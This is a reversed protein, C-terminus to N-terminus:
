RARESGLRAFVITLALAPLMLLAGLRAQGTEIWSAMALMSAYAVAGALLWTARGLWSREGHWGVAVLLSLVGVMALDAPWLSRVFAPGFESPVFLDRISPRLAMLVWWAICLAGQVAFYLTGLQRVRDSPM